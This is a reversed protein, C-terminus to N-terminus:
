VQDQCKCFPKTGMTSGSINGSPSWSRSVACFTVSCTSEKVYQAKITWLTYKSPVNSFGFITVAPTFHEFFYELSSFATAETVANNLVTGAATGPVIVPM